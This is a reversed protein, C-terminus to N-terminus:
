GVILMHPAGLRNLDGMVKVRSAVQGPQHAATHAIQNLAAFRLIIIDCGIRRGILQELKEWPGLQHTRLEAHDQDVADLDCGKAAIMRVLIPPM